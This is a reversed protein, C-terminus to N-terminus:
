LFLHAGNEDLIVGKGQQVLLGPHMINQYCHLDLDAPKQDPNM